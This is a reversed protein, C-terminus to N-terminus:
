EESIVLTVTTAPADVVLACFDREQEPFLQRTAPILLVTIVSPVIATAVNWIAAFGELLGIGMWSVLTIAVVAPPVEMGELPTEPAIERGTATDRLLRLQVLELMLVGPLVDQETANVPVAEPVPNATESELLLALRVTGEFTVTAAPCVELLKVAVPACTLVFWLPTTVALAPPTFRVLVKLRTAGACTVDTDQEGAVRPLLADLVQVTVKFLAAVLAAVTESALLLPNSVTGALTVTAVPWLVAVKVAVEPVTLLLWFAVTVAVSFPRFWCAVMRNAAAWNLLKVQEGAFTFAGPVEVQVAVKVAAAALEVLTVSDLLLVLTVTGALTLIADPRLLAVNVAVTAATVELWVARRVAVRLPAEWVKVRLALAGACSVDSAQAGEVRPLLAELV